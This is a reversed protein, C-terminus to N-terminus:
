EDDEDEDESLTDPRTKKIVRVKGAEPLLSNVSPNGTMYNCSEAHANAFRWALLWGADENDKTDITLTADCTCNMEVMFAM